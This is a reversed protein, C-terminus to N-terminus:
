LPLRSPVSALCAATAPMHRRLALMHSFCTCKLRGLAQLHHQTHSEDDDDHMDKTIKHDPHFFTNVDKEVYGMKTPATVVVSVQKKQQTSHHGGLSSRPGSARPSAAYRPLRKGEKRQHHKEFPGPQSGTFGFQSKARTSTRWM